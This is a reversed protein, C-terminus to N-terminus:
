RCAHSGQCVHVQFCTSEDKNRGQRCLDSPFLSHIVTLNWLFCRHFIFEAFCGNFREDTLPAEKTKAFTTGNGSVPCPFFDRLRKLSHWGASMKTTIPLPTQSIHEWMAHSSHPSPVTKGDVLKQFLCYLFLFFCWHRDADETDSNFPAIFLSTECSMDAWAVQWFYSVSHCSSDLWPKHATDWPKPAGALMHPPQEGACGLARAQHLLSSTWGLARSSSQTRLCSVFSLKFFLSSTQGPFPLGMM